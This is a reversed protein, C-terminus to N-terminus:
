SREESLWMLEASMIELDVHAAGFSEGRCGANIIILFGV